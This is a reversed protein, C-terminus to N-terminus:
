RHGEEECSTIFPRNYLYQLQEKMDSPLSPLGYLFETLIQAEVLARELLQQLANVQDLGEQFLEDTSLLFSLFPSWTLLLLHYPYNTVYRTTRHKALLGMTWTFQSLDWQWCRNHQLEDARCCLVTIRSGIGPFIIHSLSSLLCYVCLPFSHGVAQDTRQTALYLNGRLSSIRYLTFISPSLLLLLLLLGIFFQKRNKGAYLDM